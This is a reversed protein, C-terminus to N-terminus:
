AVSLPYDGDTVQPAGMRRPLCPRRAIAQGGSCLGARTHVHM